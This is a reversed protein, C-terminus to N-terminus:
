QAGDEDTLYDFVPTFRGLTLDVVLHSASILPRRVSAIDVRGACWSM